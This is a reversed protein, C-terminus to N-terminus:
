FSPDCSFVQFTSYGSACVGWIGFRLETATSSAQKVPATSKLSLLYIPKLITLSISVLLFLLFAIGLLASTLFSIFRYRALPKHYEKMKDHDDDGHVAGL